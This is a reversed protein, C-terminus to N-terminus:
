VDSGQKFMAEFDMPALRGGHSHDHTHTYPLIGQGLIGMAEEHGRVHSPTGSCCIHSNLCIVHDSAELVYHLDHSILIATRGLTKVWFNLFAILHNEGKLDLGTMAEDLILLTPDGMLARALLTRQREGGSLHHFGEHLIPTIGMSHAVQEISYRPRTSFGSLFDRVRLPLAANVSLSQPVYGLRLNPAFRIHGTYPVEKLLAKVFTTKGSGNPGIITTLQGKHIDTSIDKLIEKGKITVTLKKLSILAM